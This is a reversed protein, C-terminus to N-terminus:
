SSYNDMSNAADDYESTTNQIEILNLDEAPVPEEYARMYKNLMDATAQIHASWVDLSRSGYQQVPEGPMRLMTISEYPLQKAETALKLLDGIRFDTELYPYVARLVGLLKSNPTDKLKKLLGAFFMRQTDLRGLDPINYGNRFRVFWDAAIGDLVYTEGEYLITGNQFDITKTMTVEIGGLADIVERMGEMKITVYHDIPLQFIDNIAQAVCGIGPAVSGDVYGNAYLGNIKGYSGVLDEGVWTDRPIQFLAATNNKYDFNAVAIVDTNEETRGEENDIGCILINVANKSASRLAPDLQESPKVRLNLVVVIVVILTVMVTLTAFFRRRARRKKSKKNRKTTRTQVTTERSQQKM